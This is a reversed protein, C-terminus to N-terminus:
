YSQAFTQKDVYIQRTLNVAGTNDMIDIVKKPWTERTNFSNPRGGITRIFRKNVEETFLVEKGGEAVADDLMKRAERYAAISSKESLFGSIFDKINQINARTREKQHYKFFTLDTTTGAIDAPRYDKKLSPPRQQIEIDAADYDELDVPDFIVTGTPMHVPLTLAPLEPDSSRANLSMINGSIRGVYGRGWGSELSIISLIAAPPANHQVCLDITSRTMRAYFTSVHNYKRYRYEESNRSTHLPPAPAPPQQENNGQMQGNTVIVTKAEPIDAQAERNLAETSDAARSVLSVPMSPDSCSVLSLLANGILIVSVFLYLHFVKM